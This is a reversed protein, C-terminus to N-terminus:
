HVLDPDAFQQCHDVFEELEHTKDFVASVGMQHCAQRHAETASNTLVIVRARESADTMNSLVQFGTGEKLFLDLVTIRWVRPHQRLWSSAEEQTEATAIVNARLLTTLLSTLALRLKPDDEVLFISLTM